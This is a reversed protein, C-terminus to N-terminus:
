GTPRVDFGNTVIGAEGLVKVESVRAWGPGDLAVALMADVSGTEGSFVAEVEGSRLNRVWGSLGLERARDACWARYGVGQVRGAVLVHVARQRSPENASM